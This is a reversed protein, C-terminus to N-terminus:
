KKLKALIKNAMDMLIGSLKEEQEETFRYMSKNYFKNKFTSLTM